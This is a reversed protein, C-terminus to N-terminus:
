ILINNGPITLAAENEQCARMKGESFLQLCRMKLSLLHKKKRENETNKYEKSL